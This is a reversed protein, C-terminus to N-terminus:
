VSVNQGNKWYLLVLKQGNKWPIYVYNQGNKWSKVNRAQTESM